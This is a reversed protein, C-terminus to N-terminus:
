SAAEQDSLVKAVQGGSEDTVLLEVESIKMSEDTDTGDHLALRSVMKKQDAIQVNSFIKEEEVVGANLDASGATFTMTGEGTGTVRITYTDGKAFYVSKLGDKVTLVVGSAKSEGDVEDNVIRGVLEDASNFVEINVPCKARMYYVHFVGKRPEFHPNSQLFALYISPAHLGLGLRLGSIASKNNEYTEQWRKGTLKQYGAETESSEDQYFWIYYGYGYWPYQTGFRTPVNDDWCLFNHINTYNNKVEEGFPSPAAFTYGHVNAAGYKDSM